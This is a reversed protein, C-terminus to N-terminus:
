KVDYARIEDSDFLPVLVRSRKADFGIDAPSRVDEIITKFVGGPKGRYIANAEWSAVLLDGGPLMVIGDLRGMPLLQPRTKKGKADIAYLESGGHSAVWISEGSALLGNPGHLEKSKVITTVKKEKDISYVADTSAPEFGSAGAKMGMDSVLVHGDATVTVDNLFTAGPVKIAAGPAGTKRDFIRVTDIDAVYLSDGVLALGKPANLTVKNKGGEIWKLAAVKGDPTLRSIFAKGDADLPKGDINSAIYVDAVDDHIVSEPTALGVGKWTVIPEKKSPAVPEATAPSAKAAADEAAMTSTTVSTPQATTTTPSSKNKDCATLALVAFLSTAIRASLM